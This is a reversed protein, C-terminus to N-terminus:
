VGWATEPASRNRRHRDEQRDPIPEDHGVAFQRLADAGHSAWNHLPNTKWIKLREDYERRYNRLCELGRFARENDVFAHDLMRRTANIGDLVNHQPVVTVEIGMEELTDRRSKGSTLERVEIDHPFYHTGYLYGAPNKISRKRDELVQVYHDLGVGSAEYYDILRRETGVCQIFWIPTSDRIGLDWATHVRVAREVQIPRIRNEEAAIRMEEGYFAGHIAAEFSCELEQMYRDTGMALLLADLESQPLIKSVSAPLMMHYWNAPDIQAARSVEWFENKGKPTGILTASGNRDALMPRVVDRWLSPRQDGFEDLVVDDFYGGRIADPNDGGYLRLTAGNLLTVRLDSESPDAGWLPQSFRKLYAWAVEKAQGRYPAIYGFRGDPRQLTIARKVQDNIVAVTKGARRHCVMCAWRQTRQHFPMFQVRPAYDLEILKERPTAHAGSLHTAAAIAASGLILGRRSLPNM